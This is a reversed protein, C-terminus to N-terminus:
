PIKRLSKVLYNEGEKPLKLDAKEGTAEEKKTGGVNISSIYIGPFVRQKFYWEFTILSCFTILIIFFISLITWNYKLGKINKFIYKFKQSVSYSKSM